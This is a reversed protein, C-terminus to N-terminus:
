KNKNYENYKATVERDLRIIDILILLPFLLTFLNVFAIVPVFVVIWSIGSLSGLGLLKGFLLWLFVLALPTGVIKFIISARKM